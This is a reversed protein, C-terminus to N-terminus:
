VRRACWGWAGARAKSLAVAEGVRGDVRTFVNRLGGDEVAFEFAVLELAHVPQGVEILLYGCRGWVRSVFCYKKKRETSETPM